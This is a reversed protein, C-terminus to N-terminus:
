EQGLILKGTEKPTLGFAATIEGWSKQEKSRMSFIEGATKKSKAFKELLYALVIERGNAGSRRMSIIDLDSIAFYEKVMQDTVLEAIESTNDGASIIAHYLLKYKGIAQLEGSSVIQRWTGGNDRIALLSILPIGEAQSIFLAILLGDPAVAGRMKMMVIQRKSVHLKVALFSNFSTTLLYSDAAFKKEPHYAREQFCHCNTASGPIDMALVQTVFLLIYAVVVFKKNKM